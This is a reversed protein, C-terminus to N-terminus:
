SGPLNHASYHVLAAGNHDCYPSLLLLVTLDNHSILRFNFCVIYGVMRHSKQSRLFEERLKMINKLQEPSSTWIDSGSCLKVAKLLLM